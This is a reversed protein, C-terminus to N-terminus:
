AFMDVILKMLIKVLEQILPALFPPLSKGANASELGKQAERFFNSFQIPTMNGGSAVLKRGLEGMVKDHVGEWDDDHRGPVMDLAEDAAATVAKDISDPDGPIKGNAINDALIEYLKAMIAAGTADDVEEAWGRVQIEIGSPGPVPPAKPGDPNTPPVTGPPPIVNSILVTPSGDGASYWATGNPLIVITPEGAVVASSTAMVLAFLIARRM